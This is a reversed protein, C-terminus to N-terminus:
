TYPWYSLDSCRCDCIFDHFQEWTCVRLTFKWILTKCATVSNHCWKSRKADSKGKTPSVFLALGWSLHFCDTLMQVYNLMFSNFTDIYIVFVQAQRDCYVFTKSEALLKLLDPYVNQLLHTAMSIFFYLSINDMWLKYVFHPFDMSTECITRRM